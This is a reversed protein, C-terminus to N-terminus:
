IINFMPSLVSTGGGVTDPDYSMHYSFSIRYTGPGWTANAVPRTTGVGPPLQQTIQAGAQLRLPTNAQIRTCHGQPIWGTTSQKEVQVPSCNYYRANVYITHALNNKITVTISDSPHYQTKDTTLTVQM